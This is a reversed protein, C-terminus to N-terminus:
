IKNGEQVKFFAGTKKRVARVVIFTSALIFTAL